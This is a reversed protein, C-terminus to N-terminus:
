SSLNVQPASVCRLKGLIPDLLFIFTVYMKVGENCDSLCDVSVHMTLRTITQLQREGFERENSICPSLRVTQRGKMGGQM